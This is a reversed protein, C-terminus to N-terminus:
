SYPGLFQGMQQNSVQTFGASPTLNLLALNHRTPPLWDVRTTTTSWGVVKACTPLM